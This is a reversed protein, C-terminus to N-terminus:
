AGPVGYFGPRRDRFRHNQPTLGKNRARFVDLTRVQAEERDRGAHALVRGDPAVIQSQGIFRLGRERGTRNATVSFVGNELSRIKMAEPGWPLVLNSPHALVDAGKLALARASEPFFWDFCIMLGVRVGAVAHVEFGTNGPSFFLKERGFLHTKRYLVTRRPAFLFASNYFRGGAKEVFGGTVACDREEAFARLARCTPGDPFREAAREVEQRSNFRYGAAFFEPLVWLDATKAAMLALCRETNERLALIKPRNQVFGVRWKKSAM